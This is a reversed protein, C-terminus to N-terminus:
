SLRAAPSGLDVEQEPLALGAEVELRRHGRTTKEGEPHVTIRYGLRRHAEHLYLEWFASEFATNDGSRLRSRLANRETEDDVAYASFWDDIM